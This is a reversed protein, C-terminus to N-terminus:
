VRERCSARGIEHMVRLLFRGRGRMRRILLHKWVIIQQHWYHLYKGRKILLPLCLNRIVLMANDSLLPDYPKGLLTKSFIGGEHARYIACIRPMFYLRNRSHTAKIWLPWDESFPISEDYGGIGVLTRRELFSTPGQICNGFQLLYLLQEDVTVSIFESPPNLAEELVGNRLIQCSGFILRAEPHTQSFGVFAEICQPTLIDDGAILKVWEGQAAGVGRNCNPSIGTNKEATLLESRVFRDRHKDIWNRCAEVTDDTSCDDSVILEIKRYTQALASELTELVYKASNYTIVIISVLPESCPMIKLSM